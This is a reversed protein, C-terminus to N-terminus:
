AHQVNNSLDDPDRRMLKKLAFIVFRLLMAGARSGCRASDWNTRMLSQRHYPLILSCKHKSNKSKCKNTM